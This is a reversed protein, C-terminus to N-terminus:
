SPTTPRSGADSESWAQGTSPANEAGDYMWTTKPAPNFTETLANATPVDNLEGGGRPHKWVWAAIGGALALLAALGGIKWPLHNNLPPTPKSVATTIYDQGNNWPSVGPLQQTQQVTIQPPGGDPAPQIEGRGLTGDPLQVIDRQGVPLSDDHGVQTVQDVLVTQGANPFDVPVLQYVIPAWPQWDAPPPGVWDLPPIWAGGLFSGVSILAATAAAVTFPFVGATAMNLLINGGAPVFVTQYAGNYFYRFTVDTATPNFFHPRHYIDYDVYDWRQSRFVGEDRNVDTRMALQIQENFNVKAPPPPPQKPDIQLAPAVRAAAISEPSAAAVSKPPAALPVTTSTGGKPIM